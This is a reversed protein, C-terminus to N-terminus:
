LNEVKRFSVIIDDHPNYSLINHKLPFLFFNGDSPFKWRLNGFAIFVTIANGNFVIM